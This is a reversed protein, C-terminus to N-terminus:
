RDLGIAIGVKLDVVPKVAKRFCRAARRNGLLTPSVPKVSEDKIGIDKRPVRSEVFGHYHRRRAALKCAGELESVPIAYSKLQGLIDTFWLEVFKVNHERAMKLIYEKGDQNGKKELAM